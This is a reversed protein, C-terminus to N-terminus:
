CGLERMLENTKPCSWVANERWSPAEQDLLACLREWNDIIREWVPSVERMENLRMMFDPCQDLLLRCRRLDDAYVPHYKHFSGLANFKSLHTFITNSSVDRNGNKLWAQAQESLANM